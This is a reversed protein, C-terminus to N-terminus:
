TVPAYALERCRAQGFAVCRDPAHPTRPRSLAAVRRSSRFRGPALLAPASGRLGPADWKSGFPPLRPNPRYRGPAPTPDTWRQRPSRQPHPLGTAPAPALTLPAFTVPLADKHRIITANKSRGAFPALLVTKTPTVKAGKYHPRPDLALRPRRRSPPSIAPSPLRASAAPTRPRPQPDHAAGRFRAGRM